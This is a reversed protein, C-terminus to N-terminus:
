PNDVGYSGFPLKRWTERQHAYWRLNRLCCWSQSYYVLLSQTMLSLIHTSSAEDPNPERITSHLYYSSSNTRLNLLNLSGLAQLNSSLLSPVTQLCLKNKAQKKVSIDSTKRTTTKPPVQTPLQSTSKASPGTANTWYKSYNFCGEMQDSTQLDNNTALQIPKCIPAVQPIVWHGPLYLIILCSPPSHDLLFCRESWPLALQKM